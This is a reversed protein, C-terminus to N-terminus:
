QVRVLVADGRSTHITLTSEELTYAGSLDMSIGPLADAAFTITLTGEADEYTIDQATANEGVILAIEGTGDENLTLQMHPVPLGEPINVAADNQVEWTGTLSEGGCAVLALCLLLACVICLTRKM